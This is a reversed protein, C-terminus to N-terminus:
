TTRRETLEMMHLLAARLANRYRDADPSGAQEMRAVEAAMRNITEKLTDFLLAFRVAADGPAQRAQQPEKPNEAAQREAAYAAKAQALAERRATEAAQQAQAEAQGAARDREEKRAKEVAARVAEEREADARQLAAEMEAKAAARAEAAAETRIQDLDIERAAAQVPETQLLSLQEAMGNREEQLRRVREKLEAVTIDEVGEAAAAADEPALHTLLELKTIGAGAHQEILAAPLKEVAAIYNYAQRQQLGLAQSTYDAFSAFGLAKYQGTDRMQKLRRAMDLLNQEAARACALIETHLAYAQRVPEPVDTGALRMQETEM